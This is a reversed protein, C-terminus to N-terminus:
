FSSCEVDDFGNYNIEEQLRDYAWDTGLSSDDEQEAYWNDPDDEDECDEEVWVDEYSTVTTSIQVRIRRRPKKRVPLEFPSPLEDNVEDIAADFEDCWNRREAEDLLRQGIIGVAKHAKETIAIREENERREAVKASNLYQILAGVTLRTNPNAILDYVPSPCDVWNDEAVSPNVRTNMEYTRREDNWRFYSAYDGLLTENTAGQQPIIQETNQEYM